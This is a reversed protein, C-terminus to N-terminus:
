IRGFRNFIGVSLGVRDAIEQQTMGTAALGVILGRTEVLSDRQGLRRGM